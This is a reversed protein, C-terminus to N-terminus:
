GKLPSAKGLEIEGGSRQPGAGNAAEGVKADGRARDALPAEFPGFRGM